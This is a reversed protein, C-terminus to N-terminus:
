IPVARLFAWNSMEGDKMKGLGRFAGLGVFQPRVKSFITM